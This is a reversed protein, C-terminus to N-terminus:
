DIYLGGFGASKGSNKGVVQVSVGIFKFIIKIREQPSHGIRKGLVIDYLRHVCRGM